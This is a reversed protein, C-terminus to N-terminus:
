TLPRSSGGRGAEGRLPFYARRLSPYRQFSLLLFQGGSSSSPSPEGTWVSQGSPNATPTFPSSKMRTLSASTGPATLLPVAQESRGESVVQGDHLTQSRGYDSRRSLSREIYGATEEDAQRYFIKSDMNNRITKAKHHGYHDDLQSFDQIAAWVSMGRGAATAVYQSLSPIGVTGAEDMLLLVPRCNRGRAADYTDLMQGILSELILRILPAKGLIASEPACLYVTVPT